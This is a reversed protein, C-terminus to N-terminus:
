LYEPNGGKNEQRYSSTFRTTSGKGEARTGSPRRSVNPYKSAHAVMKRRSLLTTSLSKVM